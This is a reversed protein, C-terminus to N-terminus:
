ANYGTFIKVEMPTIELIFLNIVDAIEATIINVDAKINLLVAVKVKGKVKMVARPSSIIYIEKKRISRIINL